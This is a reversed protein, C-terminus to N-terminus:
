PRGTAIRDAADTFFDGSTIIKTVAEPVDKEGYVHGDEANSCRVIYSTVGVEDSVEWGGDEIRRHHRVRPVNVLIETIAGGCEPCRPVEGHNLLNPETM